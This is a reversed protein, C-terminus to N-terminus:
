RIFSEITEYFNKATKNWEFESAWKIANQSMENTLNENEFLLEIKKALEIINGNPVLFGSYNNKISDRLGEVDYGVVPLGCANAEVVTIGWGEKESAIAYIHSKSLLKIKEEDNVYGFFTVDESISLKKTLNKLRKEDDGTGLIWLKSSKAKLSSSKKKIISFSKLIHDVRKYKKLRGFYVLTPFPNKENLAKSRIFDFEIGNYCIFTKKYNYNQILKKKSSESVVITPINSYFSLLFKEMLFVYLALPFALEKFVSTGHIHHHIAIIPKNKIYLPTVLPIKSIDDIILDYNNKSFFKKWYHYFTFNFLFNNPIRYVRYGNIIEFDPFVKTAGNFTSSVFDVEWNAPKRKLIEDINVEAGGAEPNKIDRWNIVLVKM